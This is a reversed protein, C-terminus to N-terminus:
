ADGKAAATFPGKPTAPQLPRDAKGYNTFNPWARNDKCLEHSIAQEDPGAMRTRIFVALIWGRLAAAIKEPTANLPTKKKALLTQGVPEFGRFHRTSEKAKM